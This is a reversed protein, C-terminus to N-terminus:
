QKMEVAADAAADREQAYENEASVSGNVEANKQAVKRGEDRSGHTDIPSYPPPAASSNAEIAEKELREIEKKANEVNLETQKKQNEEWFDVKEKLKAVVSSIDAQSSPADIKFNNLQEILDISLNFNGTTSPPAGNGNKRGKKGKKSGTGAFYDEDDRKVVKMGKMATDDVTRQAQAAFKGPGSDRPAPASSPDFHHMLTKARQIEEQYAPTSAADLKERAKEQRDERIRQEKAAKQREWRAQSAQREYDRYERLKTFYEDKIAKIAKYKATDDDHLRDREAKLTNINKHVDDQDSRIQDLEKNIANFRDNLARFEPNDLKKKQTAIESKLGDIGKASEDFGGFTKKLKNLSTIENLAKKEEVLSLRGTDVQATLNKIQNDIEGVSKYSVKGKANKFREQESKLQKELSSLKEQDASRTTKFSSQKQQIERKEAILAQRRDNVPSGRSGQFASDVKGKVAEYKARAEKHEAEADKVSAEFKSKDPKEPRQKHAIGDGTNAPAVDAM